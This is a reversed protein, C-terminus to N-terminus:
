SMIMIVNYLSSFPSLSHSYSDSLLLAILIFPIMSTPLLALLHSPLLSAHDMWSDFMWSFLITSSSLFFYFQMSSFPDAILEFTSHGNPFLHSAFASPVLPPFPSLICVQKMPFGQKDNGGKIVLSYGAWEPGLSDAAVEQGMRKDMFIRSKKEDDLEM